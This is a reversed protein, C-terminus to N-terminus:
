IANILSDLFHFAFSVKASIAKPHDANDDYWNVSAGNRRGIIVKNPGPYKLKQEKLQRHARRM